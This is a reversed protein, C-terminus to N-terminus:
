PRGPPPTLGTPAGADGDQAIAAGHVIAKFRAHQAARHALVSHSTRRGITEGLRVLTEM